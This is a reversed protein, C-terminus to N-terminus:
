PEGIHLSPAGNQMWTTDHLSRMIGGCVVILVALALLVSLWLKANKRFPAMGATRGALASALFFVAFAALVKIGFLMHYLKQDAEPM